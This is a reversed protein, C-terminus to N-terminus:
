IGKDDLNALFVFPGFCAICGDSKNAEMYANAEDDSSFLATIRFRKGFLALYIAEGPKAVYSM